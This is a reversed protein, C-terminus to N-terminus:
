SRDSPDIEEFKASFKGFTRTKNQGYSTCNGKYVLKFVDSTNAPVKVEVFGKYLEQEFAKKKAQYDSESEGEITFPLTIARSAIKPQGIVVRKGHELRSENEIYEKMTLPTDIADIFGRGMRVGWEILADKGNILLDAM